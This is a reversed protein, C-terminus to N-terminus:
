TDQWFLKTLVYCRVAHFDVYKEARTEGELVMSERTVRRTPLRHPLGHVAAVADALLLEHEDEPENGPSADLSFRLDSSV